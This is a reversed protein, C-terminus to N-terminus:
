RFEETEEVKKDIELVHDILIQLWGDLFVRYNSIFYLDHFSM